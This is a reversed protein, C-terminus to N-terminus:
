SFNRKPLASYVYLRFRVLSIVASCVTTSYPQFDNLSIMVNRWAWEGSHRAM